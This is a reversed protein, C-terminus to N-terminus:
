YGYKSGYSGGSDQKPTPNAPLGVEQRQKQKFDKNYAEIQKISRKAASESSLDLSPLGKFYMQAEAATNIGSAGMAKADAVGQALLAGNIRNVANYVDRSKESGLKASAIDGVINGANIFSGFVGTTDGSDLGEKIITLDRSRQTDPDDNELAVRKDMKEAATAGLPEAVIRGNAYQKARLWQGGLKYPTGDLKIANGMDDVSGVSAVSEQQAALQAKKEKAEQRAYAKDAQAAQFGQSAVRESSQFDRDKQKEGSQWGQTAERESSNYAQSAERESTQYKQQLAMMKMERAEAIRAKEEDRIEVARNGAAEGAAGAFMSALAEGISM